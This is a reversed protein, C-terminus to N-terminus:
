AKPIYYPELKLDPGFTCATKGTVLWYHLTAYRNPTWFHVLWSSRSVGPLLDYPFEAGALAPDSEGLVTGNENAILVRFKGSVNAHGIAISSFWGRTYDAEVSAPCSQGSLDTFLEDVNRGLLRSDTLYYHKVIRATTFASIAFFGVVLIALAIRSRRGFRSLPPICFPLIALIPLLYRGQIWLIHQSGVPTWMIFGALFIAASVSLGALAGWWVKWFDIQKWNLLALGLVSVFLVYTAKYFWPPLPLESWGFFGIMDAIMQRTDWKITHFLVRTFGIPHAAIFHVQAPPNHGAFDGGALVFIPRVFYSWALYAGAAVAIAASCFLIARRWGLRKYAALLLLAFPLHVPKDVTLLFLCAVLAARLLATDSELFRICLAVFLISLAIIGADSSVSSIQYFSMPLIAPIMLLLEYGPALCLALFVILVAAVANCIRASYFWVYVKHSFLRAVAIGATQPLYLAPPYIASGPFAAFRGQRLPAQNQAARDLAGLREGISHLRDEARFYEPTMRDSVFEVAAAPLLGGAQHTAPDIQPLIQGQAIQLARLFHRGEDPSQMPPVLFCLLLAVALGIALYVYPIASYGTAPRIWLAPIGGNIRREPPSAEAKASQM